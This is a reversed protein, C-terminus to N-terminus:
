KAESKPRGAAKKGKKPPADKKLPEGYPSGTGEIEWYQVLTAAEALSMSEALIRSLQNRDGSKGVIGDRRAQRLGEDSLPLSAGPCFEYLLIAAAGKGLRPLVQLLTRRSEAPKGLALFEYDLLGRKEFFTNYEKRITIAAEESWPKDGLARALEQHRAVRIENWDVFSRRLTQLAELAEPLPVGMGALIALALHDLAQPPHPGPGTEKRALLEKALPTGEADRTTTM